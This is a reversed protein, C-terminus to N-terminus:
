FQSNRTSSASIRGVRVSLERLGKAEKEEPGTRPERPVCGVLDADVPPALEM